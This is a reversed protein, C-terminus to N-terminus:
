RFVIPIGSCRPRKKVARSLSCEGDTTTISSTRARCINEPDFGWESFANVQIPFTTVRRLNNPNDPMYFLPSQVQRHANAARATRDETYASATNYDMVMAGEPEVTSTRVLSATGIDATTSEIRCM